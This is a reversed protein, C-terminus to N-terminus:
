FLNAGSRRGNSRAAAFHQSDDIRFVALSFSKQNQDMQLNIEARFYVAANSPSHRVECSAVSSSPQTEQSLFHLRLYDAAVYDTVEKASKMFAYVPQWLPHQETLIVCVPDDMTSCAVLLPLDQYNHDPLRFRILMYANIGQGQDLFLKRNEDWLQEPAAADVQCLDWLIDTQIAWRFRDDILHSEARSLDKRIHILSTECCARRTWRGVRYLTHPNSRVYGNATKTLYIGVWGEVSGKPWDDRESVGLNLIFDQTAEPVRVLAAEIRLGKNTVTFEKEFVVGKIRHRLLRCGAFERPSRAFIGRYSQFRWGEDGASNPAVDRWAFLSMDSSDKVIEEQLRMFAKSGEGYIMPMNVDFIGLLCYAMDEIRTTERSSAWSM